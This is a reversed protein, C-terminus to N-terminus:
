NNIKLVFAGDEDNSTFKITEDNRDYNLDTVITTDAAHIKVSLLFVLLLITYLKM